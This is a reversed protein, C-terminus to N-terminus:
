FKGRWGTLEYVYFNYALKNNRKIPIATLSDIKNYYPSFAKKADFFDYSHVICYATDMKLQLTDTEKRWAYHHIDLVPGLGIM